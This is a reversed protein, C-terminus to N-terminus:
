ASLLAQNFENLKDRVYKDNGEIEALLMCRVSQLNPMEHCDRINLLTTFYNDWLNKRFYRPMRTKINWNIIDKQVEMYRGFLMVHTTGAVGYLDPQYTWSRKELMEICTFCETTVVKTFTTGKTFLKLDISVGFDILQICPIKSDISIPTMLLFNDPKIDAHIIMCSHLHDIISLIQCTIIMAIFEDVNRNTVKKVTNCVDLINGYRSFPSVLVSANNGVIAYDVSMLGPLIDDHNIRSRLELCIYYEWLNAPREQKLAIMEGTIVNKGCYVTGFTGEGIKKMVSFKTDQVSVVMGKVLPQVKNVLSCTPLEEIYSMFNIKELFAEQLKPDFPDVEGAQTQHCIFQITGDLDVEKKMYLNNAPNFHEDIEEWKQNVEVPSTLKRVYISKGLDNSDCDDLEIVPPSKNMPEPIKFVDEDNNVNLNIQKIDVEDMSIHIDLLRKPTKGGPSIFVVAKEPVECESFQGPILTSNKINNMNLSFIETNMDETSRRQDPSPYDALNIAGMVSKIIIPKPASGAPIFVPLQEEKVLKKEPTKQFDALDFFSANRDFETNKQSPEKLPSRVSKQQVNKPSPTKSLLEFLSDDTRSKKVMAASKITETQKVLPLPVTNTRETTIKFSMISNIGAERQPLHSINKRLLHISETATEDEQMQFLTSNRVDKNEKDIIVGTDVKAPLANKSVLPINVMTETSDIHINFPKVSISEKSSNKGIVEFPDEKTLMDPMKFLIEEDVNNKRPMDNCNNLRENEVIVIDSIIDGQPPSSVSSKTSCTGSITSTETREMITSLQKPAQISNSNRTVSELGINEDNIKVQQMQAFNEDKQHYNDDLVLCQRQLVTESQKTVTNKLALPTSQSRVFMDFMQTSCSENPYFINSERNIPEDDDLFIPVAVKSKLKVTPVIFDTEADIKKETELDHRSIKKSAAKMSPSEVSRRKYIDSKKITGTYKIDDELSTNEAPTSLANVSRTSVDDQKEESIMVMNVKPPFVSQRISSALTPAISIRPTAISVRKSQVVTEDMDVRFMDDDHKNDIYRKIKGEKWKQLRLEEMSREESNAYLEKTRTVMQLTINDIIPKETKLDDIFKFERIHYPHLRIGTLGRKGWINDYRDTMDNQIRRRKFYNYGHLEEPSFDQAPAYCYLSIKDYVPFGSPKDDDCAAIEFPKQPYSQRKHNSELQIGRSLNNVIVPILPHDSSDESIRFLLDQHAGFLRGRKRNCKANSWPGPERINERDRNANVLSQVISLNGAHSDESTGVYVVGGPDTNSFNNPINEQNIIGPHYSKVALGTRISGVHKKKHLKLSTLANRREAFSTKFIMKSSEDKHLLRQSMSFGFQKHAQILDEKPSAGADFGKQYIAETQAFDDEADYYYAWGIYLEACLTGIGRDYLEQYLEQPSTQTDIYKMCIKLFRHDQHYKENCEFKAVCRLLIRNTETQNGSSLSTQEIWGLYEYWPQLPDSGEYNNIREEFMRKEEYIQSDSTLAIELKEMDRGGRLPQINEKTKELDEM